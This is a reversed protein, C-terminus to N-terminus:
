ITPHYCFISPFLDAQVLMAVPRDSEEPEGLTESDGLAYEIPASVPGAM